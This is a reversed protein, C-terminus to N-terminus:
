RKKGRSIAKAERAWTVLRNDLHLLVSASSSPPARSSTQRTEPPSKAADARRTSPTKKRPSLSHRECATKGVDGKTCSVQPAQSVEAAQSPCLVM